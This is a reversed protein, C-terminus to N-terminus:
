SRSGESNTPGASLPFIEVSYRGGPCPKGDEGRYAGVGLNLKETSLDAKWALTVGLIPDPPAQQVEAFLSM